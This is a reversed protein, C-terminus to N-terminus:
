ALTFLSASGVIKEADLCWTRIHIRTIITYIRVSKLRVSVSSPCTLWTLAATSILIWDSKWCNLCGIWQFYQASPTLRTPRVCIESSIPWVLFTPRWYPLFKMLLFLATLRDWFGSIWINSYESFSIFVRNYLDFQGSIFRGTFSWIPIKMGNIVLSITCISMWLLGPVPM